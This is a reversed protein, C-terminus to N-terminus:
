AELLEHLLQRYAAELAPRPMRCALYVPLRNTLWGALWLFSFNTMTLTDPSHQQPCCPDM